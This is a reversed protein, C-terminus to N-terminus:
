LYRMYIEKMEPLVQNLSYQEVLKKSKEGFSKRIEESDYLKEIAEAFAQLDDIGVVYGNVGDEVLDQNGRCATVVLPLGVAMAEMVNVPLGERRSSSVALDAIQMLGAIDDRQGLFLINEELHLKKVLQQYQNFYSGRGALLLKIRPIRNRVVNIAKILLDQHKNYNLEAAYILIFDHENFGYGKRLEKKKESTQPVFKQLDVGVGKVFEISKAKFKKRAIEYDEKNITILCDTHKSLWNEIPYSLLWNKIPAGQYFYFGHATYLVKTGKNRLNKAAFRTLASGMSTHCHILKFENENIIKKLHKYVYWNMIKYPSRQFPLNYKIDVFPIDADGKSAVHVEYGQEKFWKLYPIHFNLIHSDVIAVFLIKEM